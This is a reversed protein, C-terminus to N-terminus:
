LLAWFLVAALVGTLVSAITAVALNSTRRSREIARIQAQANSLTASYAADREKGHQEYLEIEQTMRVNTEHSLRLYEVAQRRTQESKELAKKLEDRSERLGDLKMQERLRREQQEAEAEELAPAEAPDVQLRPEAENQTSARKVAALEKELRGVTLKLSAAEKRSQDLLADHESLEEELLLYAAKQEQLANKARVREGRGRSQMTDIKRRLKGCEESESLLRRLDGAESGFPRLLTLAAKRTKKSSAKANLFCLEAARGLELRILTAGFGQTKVSTDNGVIRIGPVWRGFEYDVQVGSRQPRHGHVVVDIEMESLTAAIEAGYEKYHTKVEDSGYLIYQEDSEGGTGSYQGLAEISDFAERYHESNFGNVHSGTEDKYRLLSRLFGISPYAHIFMVPGDVYFLDLREVFSCIRNLTRQSAGYDEGSKLRQWLEQEHNGALIKVAGGRESVQTELQSWYESVEFNPAKKDLIDGTHVISLGALDEALVGDANVIEAFELTKSVCETDNDTDSFTIIRNIM